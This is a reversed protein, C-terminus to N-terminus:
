REILSYSEAIFTAPNYGCIKTALKKNILTGNRMGAYDKFSSFEWDELKIVLGAKLPNQHIYHFCNLYYDNKDNSHIHKEASLQNAKTKQRFLSGTKNYRGNYIRTYSSLLKRISNTVPDLTLNGQKITQNCHEDTVLQFHFHNPMLCYAIIDGALALTNRTVRLFCLFDDTDHFLDQKNNGQYYIHYVHNPQFNM